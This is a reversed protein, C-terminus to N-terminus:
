GWDEDDNCKAAEERDIDDKEVRKKQMCGVGKRGMGDWGMREKMMMM